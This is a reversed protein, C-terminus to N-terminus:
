PAPPHDFGGMGLKWLKRNAELLCFYLERNLLIELQPLERKNSLISLALSLVDVVRQEHKEWSRLRSIRPQRM